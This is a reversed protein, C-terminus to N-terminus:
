TALRFGMREVTIGFEEDLDERTRPALLGDTMLGDLLHLDSGTLGALLGLTGPDIVQGDPRVDTVNEVELTPVARADVAECVRALFADSRESWEVVRLSRQLKRYRGSLDRWRRRGMAHAPGSAMRGSLLQRSLANDVAPWVEPSRLFEALPRDAKTVLDSGWGGWGAREGPSLAQWFRYLSLVRSRPERVQVALVDCGAATLSPASYHGIVLRHSQVVQALAAPGVITSRNPEPISRRLEDSGFHAPDYYLPGAYCSPLQALASRVASGGCKPVHLIGLCRSLGKM